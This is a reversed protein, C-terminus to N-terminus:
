YCQATQPNLPDWTVTVDELVGVQGQKSYKGCGITNPRCCGAPGSVTCDHIWHVSGDPFMHAVGTSKKNLSLGLGPFCAYQDQANVLGSFLTVSAVGAVLVTTKKLFDRRSLNEFEM